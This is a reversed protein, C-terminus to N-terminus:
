RQQGGVRRGLAGRPKNVDALQQELGEVQKGLAEKKQRLVELQSELAGLNPAVLPAPSPLTARKEVQMPLGNRRVKTRLLRERKKMTELGNEARQILESIQPKMEHALERQAATVESETVTDFARRNNVVQALRPFDYTGHHLRISAANLNSCSAHLHQSCQDLTSWYTPAVPAPYISQRARSM